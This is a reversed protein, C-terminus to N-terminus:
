RWSENTCGGSYVLSALGMKANSSAENWLKESAYQKALQLYRVATRRNAMSASNGGSQAGVCFLCFYFFYLGLCLSIAKKSM